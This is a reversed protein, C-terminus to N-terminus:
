PIRGGSQRSKTLIDTTRHMGVVSLSYNKDSKLAMFYKTQKMIVAGHNLINAVLYFAKACLKGVGSM